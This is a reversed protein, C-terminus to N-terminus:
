HTVSSMNRKGKLLNRLPKEVYTYTFWSFLIVVLTFVMVYPISAYLPLSVSGPGTYPHGTLDLLPIGVCLILMYHTLYISYSITGIFQLAPLLWLKRLLGQNAAVTLVLLMFLPIYLLDHWAGNLLYAAVVLCVGGLVDAKLFSHVTKHKFLPYCMMGCIFGALGRLYGFEFTVNVDQENPLNWPVHSRPVWYVVSLYLVLSMLGLMMWGRTGQKKVFIFLLPFLLYSFWEASISWSPPNWTFINHVGFSQCLFLHTILASPNHILSALTGSMYPNVHSYYVIVIIALMVVHLPYIRALRARLFSVYDTWGLSQSFSGSYVHMLIFGSMIFFLDVMLYANGLFRSSPSFQLHVVMSDFHMAMVLLAAIGRLATLSPIDVTKQNM